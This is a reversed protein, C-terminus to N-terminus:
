AYKLQPLKSLTELWLSISPYRQPDLTMGYNSLQRIRSFWALDAFSLRIGVLYSHHQLHAELRDLKHLIHQQALSENTDFRHTGEYVDGIWQVYSPHVDKPVHALVAQRSSFRQELLPRITYLYFLPRFEKHTGQELALWMRMQAAEYPDDPILRQAVPVSTDLYDVITETEFLTFAGCQIAPLEGNPNLATFEHSKHAMVAMDMSRLTHPINYWRLAMVIRQTHPSITNGWVIVPQAVTAQTLNQYRSVLVQLKSSQPPQLVATDSPKWNPHLLKNVGMVRRMVAGVTRIVIAQYWRLGQLRQLCNKAWILIGTAALKRVDKDTRTLSQTFSGRQQLRKMWARVMPYRKSTIELGIYAYMDVRPYVSIEAQTFTDCVLYTKGTLASELKDLWKYLRDEYELEEQSTLVKLDWIREEWLLDWPAETSRRAIRLAEEKTRTMRVIPGLMRTYMLTRYDKGMAIEASQWMKVEARQQPDQPYLRIRPFADDLYETIVNSEYLVRGAHALSPVFGNPNISLYDARRQQLASLDIWVSDWRLGKEIMSIRVRRACPSAEADYLIIENLNAASYVLEATPATM